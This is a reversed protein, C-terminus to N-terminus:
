GETHFPPAPRPRCTGQRHRNAVRKAMELVTGLAPSRGYILDFAGTPRNYKDIEKKLNNVQTHSRALENSLRMTETIERESTLAGLVRDGSMIPAANILVHQGLVPQHYRDRIPKGSSLANDQVKTIILNSFFDTIHRGLAESAKIKYRQEMQENWMTLVGNEDIACISENPISLLAEIIAILLENEEKLKGILTLADQEDAAEKNHLPRFVHHAMAEGWLKDLNRVYTYCIEYM